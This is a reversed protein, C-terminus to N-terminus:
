GRFKQAERADPLNGFHKFGVRANNLELMKAKLPLEDKNRNNQSKKILEFYKYFPTIKDVEVDFKKILSWIFMEVSDQFISIALGASIPDDICYQEGQMFLWKSLILQKVM